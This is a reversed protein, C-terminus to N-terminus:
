GENQQKNTATRQKSPSHTHTNKHTQTQRQRRTQKFTKTVLESTFYYKLTTKIKM